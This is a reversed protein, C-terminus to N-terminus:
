YANLGEDSTMQLESRFYFSTHPNILLLAHHGATNSPSIAVGNSGGPEEKIDIDDNRAARDSGSATSVGAALASGYFAQLQNLNITEIDGGISGESFTLAMWPEFYKIVRPKVEPHKALYFNLGDAWANMLSKLWGPSVEYQTKIEAPDIFIKMRLDRWVASEGEAEAVRGISNIYNTEVRNFDDEAQAYIMGFVADADTKGYVHAIGWDDRIITVNRAEQEWRAAEQAKPASYALTASAVALAILLKNLRLQNTM